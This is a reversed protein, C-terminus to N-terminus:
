GTRGRRVRRARCLRSRGQLVTHPTLNATHKSMYIDITSDMRRSFGASRERRNPTSATSVFSHVKSASYLHFYISAAQKGRLNPLYRSRRTDQSHALPAKPRLRVCNGFSLTCSSVVLHFQQVLSYENQGFGGFGRQAACRITSAVGSCRTCAESRDPLLSEVLGQTKRTRAVSSASCSHRYAQCPSQECPPRPANALGCNRVIRLM